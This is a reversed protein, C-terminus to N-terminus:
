NGTKGSSHNQLERMLKDYHGSKEYQELVKAPNVEKADRMRQEAAAEGKEKADESIRTLRETYEPAVSTLTQVGWKVMPLTKATKVEEPFTDEPMVVSFMVYALALIFVGRAVGFCVGLTADIFSLEGGSRLLRIIVYNVVSCLILIVIFVGVTSVGSQLLSSSTYQALWAKVPAYFHLTGIVALVWAGLSLVERVLGRFLGLLASIGVVVVVVWDFLTM